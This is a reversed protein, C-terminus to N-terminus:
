GPEGLARRYAAIQAHQPHDRRALLPELVRRAAADDGRRECHFRASAFALPVAEPRGAHRALGDDVIRQLLADRKERLAADALQVLEGATATAFDRHADLCQEYVDLARASRKERLLVGVLRAGQLHLLEVRKRFSVQEFLEEHFRRDGGAALLADAAAQLEGRQLAADVAALVRSLARAHSEERRVADTVPANGLAVGLREQRQFGIFGLAHCITVLAYLSALVLLPFSAHGALALTAAGLAAGLTCVVLYPAGLDAIVSALRLPNLAAPLSAETALTFLFAPFLFLGAALAWAGGLHWATALLAAGFLPRLATFSAIFVMDGGFDPPTSQGAATREIVAVAYHLLWLCTIGLMPLGAVTQAGLWILGTFLVIVAGAGGRLSYALIWPLHRAIGPAEAMRRDAAADRVKFAGM